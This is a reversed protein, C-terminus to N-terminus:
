PELFKSIVDEPLASAAGADVMWTMEGNEPAILQIPKEEPHHIGYLVDALMNAKSAGRVLVIVNRAANIANQTLTLRWKSLEPVQNAIFWRKQEKLGVSRPFLSATHGDAGMGLLVLDFQPWNGDFFHRLEQEYVDAAEHVDMEAPVRHINKRPIAIHNLLAVEVMRYNSEPHYPPVHREDGWFLHIKAWNLENQHEAKGLDEYVAQPTSGGSLAATFQGRDVIAQLALDIFINVTAIELAQSSSYIKLQAM